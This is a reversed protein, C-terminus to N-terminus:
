MWVITGLHVGQNFFSNLFLVFFVWYKKGEDMRIDVKPIGLPFM